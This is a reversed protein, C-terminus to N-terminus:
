SDSKPYTLKWEWVTNKFDVFTGGASLGLGRIAADLGANVGFDDAYTLSGSATKLGGELRGSYASQLVKDKQYWPYDDPYDGPNLAPLQEGDWREDIVITSSDSARAQTNAAGLGTSEIAGIFGREYGESATLQVRTPRLQRFVSIAEFARETFLERHFDAAAIYLNKLPHKCYVVGSKVPADAFNLGLKNAAEETMWQPRAGEQTRKGRLRRAAVYVGAVAVAGAAAGAAAGALNGVVPVPTGLAAGGVAGGAVLKFALAGGGAGAVGGAVVAGAGGPVAAAVAGVVLGAAAGGAGAKLPNRGWNALVKLRGQRLARGDSFVVVSNPLESIIIRSVM